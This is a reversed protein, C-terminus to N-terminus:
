DELMGELEDMGKAIETIELAARHAWLSFDTAWKYSVVVCESHHKRRNLEEQSKRHM